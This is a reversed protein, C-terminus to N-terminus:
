KKGFEFEFEDARAHKVKGLIVGFAKELSIEWYSCWISWGSYCKGNEAAMSNEQWPEERGVEGGMEVQGFGVQEVFRMELGGEIDRIARSM